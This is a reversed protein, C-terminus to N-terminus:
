KKLLGLIGGILGLVLGIVWGSGAFISLLSFVIVIAGGAATMCKYMM